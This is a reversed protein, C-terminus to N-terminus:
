REDRQSEQSSQEEQQGKIENEAEIIKESLGAPAKEPEKKDYARQESLIDEVSKLPKVSKYREVFEDREESIKSTTGEELKKPEQESKQETLLWKATKTVKDFCKRLFSPAKEVEIGEIKKSNRAIKKFTRRCKKSKVQKINKIDYKIDIGTAEKVDKGEKIANILNSIDDKCLKGLLFPDLKKIVSKELKGALLFENIIDQKKSEFINIHYHTNNEDNEHKLGTDIIVNHKTGDTYEIAYTPVGDDSISLTINKAKKQTNSGTVNNFKREMDKQATQAKTSKQATQVKTPNHINSNQESGMETKEKPKDNEQEIGVKTGDEEIKVEEAKEEENENELATEQKEPEENLNENQKGYEDRYAENWAKSFTEMEKAIEANLEEIYKNCDEQLENLLVLKEKIQDYEEHIKKIDEENTVKGTLNGNDDKEYEYKFNNWEERKAELNEKEQLIDKSITKSWSKFQRLTKERLEKKDMEDKEKMKVERGSDLVVTSNRSQNKDKVQNEYQEQSNRNEEEIAQKEDMLAQIKEEADSIIEANLDESEFKLKEIFNKREEIKEDLEKTDKIEPEAVDYKKDIEELGKRYNEMLEEMVNKEM